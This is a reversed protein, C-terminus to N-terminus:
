TSTTACSPPPASESTTRASTPRPCTSHVPRRRRRGAAHRTAISATLDHGESGYVMATTAATFRSRAYGPRRVDSSRSALVLEYNSGASLDGLTFAYSGVDEGVDRGLAGTVADTGVLNAADYGFIPDDDGYTKAQDADPTITVTRATVEFDTAFTIAYNSTVDIGGRVITVDGLDVPYSGVALETNGAGAYSLDDGASFDDDSGLGFPSSGAVLPALDPDPEGFIRESVTPELVLERALVEVDEIITQGEYRPDDATVRIWYTGVPGFSSRSPGTVDGYRIELVFAVPDSSPVPEVSSVVNPQFTTGGDYVVTKQGDTGAITVDFSIQDKM